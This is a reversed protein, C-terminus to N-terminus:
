EHSDGKSLHKLAHEEEEVVSERRLKIAHVPCVESCLGCGKCHDYDISILQKGDKKIIKIANDPCHAWCLMCGICKDNDVVPRFSRWDGTKFEESSGAKKIIGGIALQKWDKLHM